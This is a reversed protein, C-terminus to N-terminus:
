QFPNPMWSGQAREPPIQMRQWNMWRAFIAIEEPTDILFRLKWVVPYKYKNDCHLEMLENCQEVTTTLWLLRKMARNVLTTDGLGSAQRYVKMAELYSPSIWVIVWLWGSAFFSRSAEYKKACFTYIRTKMLWVIVAIAFLVTLAEM